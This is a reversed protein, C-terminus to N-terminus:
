HVHPVQRNRPALLRVQAALQEHSQQLQPPPALVALFLLYSVNQIHLFPFLSVALEIAHKLENHRELEEEQGKVYATLQRLQDVEMLQSAMMSQSPPEWELISVKDGPLKPKSSGFGTDFSNRVSSQLSSRRPRDTSMSHGHNTGRNNMSPPPHQFNEAREILAPNIVNESWGYEINSVGGSLPEKSLRASWYNATSMFEEAIEPTGVQFLHVAGSPLSLAWVHPRAKSYGPPPLTSAITQRLVFVDLQEANEMWDGGGVKAGTVSAAKGSGKGFHNKRGMSQTKGSTNFAFLTLKGKSIVAFCENWNRDKAKRDQTELHHKHKVLGEKAWPAGELTLSEDELLGGPVSFTESDGGTNEERIIAQSLANAFGISHKFSDTPSFHNFSGVSASTLTKSFSFKSSQAPSWFGSGDDFSTRSSGITSAPYLKPRSRNIGRGQWRMTMSRFDQKSRFSTADSPAKSVVSGTRKLTSHLDAVSLNRNSSPLDAAAAGHLPLPDARISTFFSKLISEIELEWGRMSGMWPFNVLTNSPGGSGSDPTANDSDNRSMTPRMSLRKNSTPAFMQLSDSFSSESREVPTASRPMVPSSPISPNSDSWPLSPRHSSLTVKLTEDFANPAADTVVRKITPLTNKVYASRSMKEGIDALHLDTNLLILSYIITHVVDQAKFGHKPNCECWRASLATIIRDFQQTEGRLVLRMCLMRLSTLINLGSFDFLQMYAQLTRTSLTNREGMWAAADGKLVDEEDGEFIRRARERYEAGEDHFEAPVHIITPDSSTRSANSADVQVTPLGLQSESLVRESVAASGNPAINEKTLTPSRMSSREPSSFNAASANLREESPTPQLRLRETSKSAPRDQIARTIIWGEDNLDLSVNNNASFDRLDQNPSEVPSDQQSRLINEGTSPRSPPSSPRAFTPNMDSLPSVPAPGNPEDRLTGVSTQRSFGQSSSTVLADPKRKRVKMKSANVEADRDLSPRASHERSIPHRSGLSADPPPTYGTHFIDPDESDEHKSDATNPRFRDGQQPEPKGNAASSEQSLFPDMVKRLSSVSPSPAAGKVDLEPNSPPIPLPPPQMAESTSKKRRRFFSSPKKNLSPPPASSSANTSPKVDNQTQQQPVETQSASRSAMNSRENGNPATQNSVSRDVPTSVARASSGGFVRKFFGPKNDRPPSSERRRSAVAPSPARTDRASPPPLTGAMSSTRVFDAAQNRIDQPIPPSPHGATRLDQQTTIKRLTSPRSKSAAANVYVPGTASPNQMKRPGGAISPEPAADLDTTSEYKSHVSPVPRGRDLVSPADAAGNDAHIHDMSMSKGNWALRNPKLAAGYANNNNNNHNNDISSSGDSPQTRHLDSSTRGIGLAKGSSKVRGALSHGFNTSSNSRRGKSSSMSFKSNPSEAMSRDFESTSSSPTHGRSRPPPRSSSFQSQLSSLYRTREEEEDNPRAGM